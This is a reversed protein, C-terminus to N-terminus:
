RNVVHAAPTTDSGRQQEATARRVVAALWRRRILGSPIRILALYAFFALRMMLSGVDVRTETTLEGDKAAFGLVVRARHGTPPVLFYERNAKGPTRAIAGELRLGIVIEFGGDHLLTYSGGTVFGDIIPQDADLREGGFHDLLFRRLVPVERWTVARAAQILVEDALDTRVSHRERWAWSPSYLDLASAAQSASDIYFM